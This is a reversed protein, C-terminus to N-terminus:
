RRGCVPVYTDSTADAIANSDVITGNYWQWKLGSIGGDPDTLTAKVAVGVRPQVKSLTVTGEEDGNTVTVKVDMTGIKGTTDAATITVEYVNDENKDGPKEYDPDALFMLEGNTFSFKGKDDGRYGLTPADGDEPDNADYAAGLMTAIDTLEDFSIAAEGTTFVPAEDKETVAITVEITDSNAADAATSDETPLGTPDTAIVTVIYSVPKDVDTVTDDESHNFRAGKAVRIQGTERDIVFKGLANADDLTYTSVDRATTTRSWM